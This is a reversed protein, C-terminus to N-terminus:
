ELLASTLVKSSLDTEKKPFNTAGTQKSINEAANSALKFLSSSATPIEPGENAASPKLRMWSIWRTSYKSLGQIKKSHEVSIKSRENKSHGKLVM